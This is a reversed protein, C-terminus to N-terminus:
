YLFLLFYNDYYIYILFAINKGNRHIESIIRLLSQLIVVVDYYYKRIEEFVLKLIFLSYCKIIDQNDGEEGNIDSLKNNNNELMDDVFLKFLGEKDTSKLILMMSDNLHYRKENFYDYLSKINFDRDYTEDTYESIFLYYVGNSDKEEALNHIEIENITDVVRNKNSSSINDDNIEELWINEVLISNNEILNILLLMRELFIRNNHLFEQQNIRASQKNSTNENNNNNFKDENIFCNYVLYKEHTQKSHISYLNEFYGQPQLLKNLLEQVYNNM